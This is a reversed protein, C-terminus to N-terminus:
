EPPSPSFWPPPPAGRYKIILSLVNTEQIQDRRTTILLRWTVGIEVIGREIRKSTLRKAPNLALHLPKAIAWVQYRHIYLRWHMAGLRSSPQKARSGGKDDSRVVKNHEGPGTGSVKRGAGPGPFLGGCM